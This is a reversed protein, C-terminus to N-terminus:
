QAYSVGMKRLCKIMRTNQAMSSSHFGGKKKLEGIHQVSFGLASFTAVDGRALALNASRMMANAQELRIVDTPLTFSRVPNSM